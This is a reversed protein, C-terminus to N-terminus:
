VVNAFFGFNRIKPQNKPIHQFSYTWDFFQSVHKHLYGSSTIYVWSLVQSLSAIKKLDQTTSAFSCYPQNSYNQNLASTLQHSVKHNLLYTLTVQKSYINLYSNQVANIARWLILM